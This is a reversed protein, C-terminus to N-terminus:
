TKTYPFGAFIGHNDTVTRLSGKSLVDTIM